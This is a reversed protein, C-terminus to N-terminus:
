VDQCAQGQCECNRLRASRRDWGGGVGPGEPQLHGCASGEAGDDGGRLGGKHTLIQATTGTFCAFQTGLDLVQDAQKKRCDSLECELERKAQLLEKIQSTERESNAKAEKMQLNLADLQLKLAHLQQQQVAASDAAAAAARREKEIDQTLQQV